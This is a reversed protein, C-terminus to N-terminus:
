SDRGECFIFIKLVLRLTDGRPVAGDARHAAERRFIELHARVVTHLVGREADRPRYAPRVPAM